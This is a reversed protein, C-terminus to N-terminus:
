CFLSIVRTFGIKLLTSLLLFYSCCIEAALLLYCRGSTYYLRFSHMLSYTKYAPFSQDSSGGNKNHIDIMLITLLLQLRQKLQCRHERKDTLIEDPCEIQGDVHSQELPRIDSDSAVQPYIKRHFRLERLPM